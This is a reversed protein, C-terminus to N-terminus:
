CRSNELQRLRADRRVASEPIALVGTLHGCKEWCSDCLYFAFTSNQEPIFGGNHGCNACFIQQATGWEKHPVTKATLRKLRSDPLSEIM